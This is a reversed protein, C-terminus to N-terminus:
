LAGVISVRTKGAPEAIFTANPLADELSEILAVAAKRGVTKTFAVSAVGDVVRFSFPLDIGLEKIVTMAEVVESQVNGTRNQSAAWMKESKSLFM